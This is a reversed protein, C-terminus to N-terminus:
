NGCRKLVEDFLQLLADRGVSSNSRNLQRRVRVVIDLGRPALFDRRFRERILRKAFNRQAARPETRKSVVVGLRSVGAENKRFYVVFWPNSVSKAGLVAAFETRDSVRRYQPLTQRVSSLLAHM